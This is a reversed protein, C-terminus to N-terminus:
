FCKFLSCSHGVYNTVVADCAACALGNAGYLCDGLALDVLNIGVSADATAAACCNARAVSDGLALIRRRFM